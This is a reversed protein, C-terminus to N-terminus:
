IAWSQRFVLSYQRLKVLFECDSDTLWNMQYFDERLTVAGFEKNKNRIPSHPTPSYSYILVGSQTITEHRFPLFVNTQNWSFVFQNWSFGFQNWIFVFSNVIAPPLILTRGKQFPWLIEFSDEVQNSIKHGELFLQVKFCTFYQVQDFESVLISANIYKSM